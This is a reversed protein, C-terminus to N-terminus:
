RARLFFPWTTPNIPSPTFSAGEIRAASTPIRHVIRHVYRLFRRVDDEHLVIKTNQVLTNEFSPLGETVRHFIDHHPYGRVEPIHETRRTGREEQWEKGHKGDLDQKKVKKIIQGLGGDWRVVYIMLIDFARFTHVYTEDPIEHDKESGYARQVIIQRETDQDEDEMRRPTRGSLM